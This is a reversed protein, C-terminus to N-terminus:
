LEKQNGKIKEPWIEQLTIIRSGDQTKGIPVSEMKVNEMKLGARLLSWFKEEEEISMNSNIARYVLDGVKAHRIFKDLGAIYATAESSEKLKEKYRKCLQQAEIFKKRGVQNRVVANLSILVGSGPLQQLIRMTKETNEIPFRESNEALVKGIEFILQQSEAEETLSFKNTARRRMKDKAQNSIVQRAHEIDLDGKAIGTIISQMKPSLKKGAEGEIRIKQIKRNLSTRITMVKYNDKEMYFKLKSSLKELTKLNSTREMEDEITLALREYAKKQIQSLEYEASGTARKLFGRVKAGDLIKVLREAQSMNIDKDLVLKANDIIAKAFKTLNGKEESYASEAELMSLLSKEVIEEDEPTLNKKDKNTDAQGVYEYKRRYKERMVQLRRHVQMQEYTYKKEEEEKSTQKRALATQVKSSKKQGKAKLRISIAEVAERCVNLGRDNVIDDVSQGENLRRTVEAKKEKRIQSISVGNVEYTRISSRVTNEKKGAIEAVEKLPMLQIALIRGKNREMITKIKELDYGSTEQIEEPTKGLLLQDLIKQRDEANIKEGRKPRIKDKIIQAAERSVNLERDGVIDDVSQGENLRRTIEKKRKQIIDSLREGNYQEQRLRSHITNINIGLRRSIEKLPLLQMALIEPMTEEEVKKIEDLSFEEREECIEEPTKGSLLLELINYKKALAQQKNIKPSLMHLINDLEKGILTELMSIRKNVNENRINALSIGQEKLLEKLLEEIRKRTNINENSNEM